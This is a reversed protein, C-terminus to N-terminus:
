ASEIGKVQSARRSFDEDSRISAPLKGFDFGPM